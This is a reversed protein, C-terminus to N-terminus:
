LDRLLDLLAVETSGKTARVTDVFLKLEGTNGVTCIILTLATFNTHDAFPLEVEVLRCLFYRRFDGLTLGSLLEDSFL